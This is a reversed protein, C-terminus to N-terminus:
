CANGLNGELAAARSKIRALCWFSPLVCPPDQSSTVIMKPDMIVLHGLFCQLWLSLTKTAKYYCVSESSLPKFRPGYVVVLYCRVRAPIGVILVFGLALFRLFLISLHPHPHPSILVRACRQGPHLIPCGSPVLAPCNRLFISFLVAVSDLLEM